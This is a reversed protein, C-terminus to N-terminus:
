NRVNKKTINYDVIMSALQGKQNEAQNILLTLSFNRLQALLASSAAISSSLISLVSINSMGGRTAMGLFTGYELIERTHNTQKKIPRKVVVLGSIFNWKTEGTIVLLKFLIKTFRFKTEPINWRPDWFLMESIERCPRPMIAILFM